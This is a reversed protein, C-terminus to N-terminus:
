TMNLTSISSHYFMSEMGEIGCGIYHAASISHSNCKKRETVCTRQWQHQRRFVPPKKLCLPCLPPFFARRSATPSEPIWETYLHCHSYTKEGLHLYSAWLEENKRMKNQPLYFCTSNQLDVVKGVCILSKGNRFSLYRKSM